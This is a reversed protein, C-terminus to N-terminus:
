PNWVAFVEVSISETPKPKPTRGPSNPFRVTPDVLERTKFTHACQGCYRRRLIADGVEATVVVPSDTGCEPCKM